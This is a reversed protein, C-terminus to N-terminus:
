MREDIILGAVENLKKLMAITDESPFERIVEKTEADFLKISIRNCEEHYTFECGTQRFRQDMNIKEIAEKLQENQAEISQSAKVNGKVGTDQKANKTQNSDTKNDSVNKIITGTKKSYTSSSPAPSVGNVGNVRDLM